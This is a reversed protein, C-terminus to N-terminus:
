AFQSIIRPTSDTSADDSVVVELNAYGQEVASTIAEAIYNEQNYSIILISVKPEALLPRPMLANDGASPCPYALAIDHRWPM